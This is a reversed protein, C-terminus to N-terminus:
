SRRGVFIVMDSPINKARTAVLHSSISLKFQVASPLVCPPIILAFVASVLPQDPIHKTSYRVDCSLFARSFM